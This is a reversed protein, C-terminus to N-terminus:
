LFEPEAVESKFENDVKVKGFNSYYATFADIATEVEGLSECDVYELAFESCDMAVVILYSDRGQKFVNVWYKRLTVVNEVWHWDEDYEKKGKNVWRGSYQPVYTSDRREIEKYTSRGWSLLLKSIARWFM